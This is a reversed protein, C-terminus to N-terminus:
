LERREELDLGRVDMEIVSRGSHGGRMRVKCGMELPDPSRRGVTEGHISNDAGVGAPKRFFGVAM